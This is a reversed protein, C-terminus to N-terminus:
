QILHISHFGDVLVGLILLLLDLYDDLSLPVDQRHNVVRKNLFELAVLL